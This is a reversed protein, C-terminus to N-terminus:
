LTDQLQIFVNLNKYDMGRCKEQANLFRTNGTVDIKKWFNMVFKTSMFRQLVNNQIFSWYHIQSM